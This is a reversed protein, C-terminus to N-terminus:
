FFSLDDNLRSWRKRGEIMGKLEIFREFPVSIAFAVGNGHLKEAITETFFATIIGTIIWVM